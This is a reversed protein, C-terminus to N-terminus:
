EVIGLADVLPLLVDVVGRDDSCSGGVSAM